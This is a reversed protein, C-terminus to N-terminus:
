IKRFYSISLRVIYYYAQLSFPDSWLARRFHSLCDNWERLQGYRYGLRSHIQSRQRPLESLETEFKELKTKQGLIANRLGEQDSRTIREYDHGVHYRVLIDPVYDVKSYRCLRRLLDGDVGRPLSEDFGGEDLLASRRALWTSGNGLPQRDLTHQFIDGRLKPCKTDFLKGAKVVQMWCYV